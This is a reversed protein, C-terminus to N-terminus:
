CCMAIARIHQLLTATGYAGTMILQMWWRAPQDRHFPEAAYGNQGAELKHERIKFGM